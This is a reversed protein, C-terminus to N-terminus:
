VDNTDEPYTAADPISKHVTMIGERLHMNDFSTGYGGPRIQAMVTRAESAKKSQDNYIRTVQMPHTKGSASRSDFIHLQDGPSVQSTDTVQQMGASELHSTPAGQRRRIAHGQKRWDGM